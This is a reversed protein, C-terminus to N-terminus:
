RKKKLTVHLSSGNPKPTVRESDSQFGPKTLTLTTPEGAPLQITTPTVGLTKGGGKVTAGPPSSTVKVQSSQRPLKVVLKNPQDAAPKIMRDATAYSAKKITLKAESGCPLEFSGPTVGLKQKGVLVDAGAPTTTVEVICKGPPAKVAADVPAAVAPRKPEMAVTGSGTPPQAPVPQKKGMVIVVLAIIAAVFLVGGAVLLILSRSRPQAVDWTGATPPYQGSGELMPAPTPSYGYPPPTHEVSAVPPMPTLPPPVDPKPPDIVPDDDDPMERLPEMLTPDIEIKAEGIGTPKEEWQQATLPKASAVAGVPNGTKGALEKALPTGPTTEVKSPESWGTAPDLAILWDGSPAGKAPEPKKEDPVDVPTPTAAAPLITPESEDPAMTWDGSTPIAALIESARMGGSRQATQPETKGLEYSANSLDTDVFPLEASLAAVPVDSIDTKEDEAIVPASKAPSRMVPMPAVPTALRQRAASQRGRGMPAPAQKNGLGDRGPIIPGPPVLKLPQTEFPHRVVPFGISTAKHKGSDRATDTPVPSPARGSAERPTPTPAPEPKKPPILEGIATREDTVEVAATIASPSPTAAPMPDTIKELPAGLATPAEHISGERAGISTAEDHVTPASPPKAPAKELPQMGLTTANPVFKQAAARPPPDGTGPKTDLLGKEAKMPQPPTKNPAPETGRQTVLLPNDPKGPMKDLAPFGISTMKHPGSGPLNPVSRPVSVPPSSTIRPPTSPTKPRPPAGVSPISPVVLRSGSGDNTTRATDRLVAVDGIVVCEALANQADIRGGVPPPVPRPEGPVSAPRPALTTPAPKIALRAKELETMVAKSQDDSEIFKITMGPRGHLITPKTSSQLIEAEGELLV